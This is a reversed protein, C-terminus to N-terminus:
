KSLVWDRGRRTRWMEEVSESSDIEDLGKRVEARLMEASSMPMATMARFPQRISSRPGEECNRPLDLAMKTIGPKGVLRTESVHSNSSSGSVAGM